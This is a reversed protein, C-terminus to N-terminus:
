RGEPVKAQVLRAITNLTRFQEATVSELEVRVGFEEAIFDIIQFLSFSDLIGLDLLPTEGNLDGGQGELIRENVFDRLRGAIAAEEM